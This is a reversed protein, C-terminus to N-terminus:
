VCVTYVCMYVCECVVASGRLKHQKTLNQLLSPRKGLKALSARIPQQCAYVMKCYAAGPNVLSTNCVRLRHRAHSSRAYYIPQIRTSTGSWARSRERRDWHHRRSLGPQDQTLTVRHGVSRSSQSCCLPGGPNQAKLSWSTHGSAM